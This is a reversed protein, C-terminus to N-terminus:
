NAFAKCKKGSIAKDYWQKFEPIKLLNIRHIM